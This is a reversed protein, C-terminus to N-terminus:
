INSYAELYTKDINDLFRQIFRHNPDNKEENYKQLKEKDNELFAITAQYYTETIGIDKASLWRLLELAKINNEQFALLQVQHFRLLEKSPRKPREEKYNKIYTDIMKIQQDFIGIAQIKNWSFFAEQAEKDLKRRWKPWQDFQEPNLSLFQESIDLKDLPINERVQLIKNEDSKIMYELGEIREAAIEKKWWIDKIFSLVDWNELINKSIIYHWTDIDNVLHISWDTWVVVYIHEKTREALQKSINQITDLNKKVNENKTDIYKEIHATEIQKTIDSNWITIDIPLIWTKYKKEIERFKNRTYMNKEDNQSLIERLENMEKNKEENAEKTKYKKDADHIKEKIKNTEIETELDIIESSNYRGKASHLDNLIDDKKRDLSGM